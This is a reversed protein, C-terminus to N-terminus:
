AHVPLNTSEIEALPVGVGRDTYISLSITPLSRRLHFTLEEIASKRKPKIM